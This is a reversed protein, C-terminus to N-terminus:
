DTADLAEKKARGASGHRAKRSEPARRTEILRLEGWWDSLALCLGRLDRHGARIEAEIAAIERRCREIDASQRGCESTLSAMRAGDLLEGKM